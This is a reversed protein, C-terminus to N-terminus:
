RGQKFVHLLNRVLDPWVTFESSKVRNTIAGLISLKREPPSSTSSELLRQFHHCLEKLTLHQESRWLVIGSHQIYPLFSDGLVLLAALYTLFFQENVSSAKILRDVPVTWFQSMSVAMETEEKMRSLFVNLIKEEHQAGSLTLDGTDKTFLHVLVNWGDQTQTLKSYVSHCYKEFREVKKIHEAATVMNEMLVRAQVECRCSQLYDCESRGSVSSLMDTCLQLCRTSQSCKQQVQQLIKLDEPRKSFIHYIKEQSSSHLRPNSMLSEVLLTRACGLSDVSLVLCSVPDLFAVMQRVHSNIDEEYDQGKIETYLEQCYDAWDLANMLSQDDWLAVSQQSASSLIKVFEFINKLITAASALSASTHAVSM